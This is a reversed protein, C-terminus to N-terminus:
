MGTNANRVELLHQAEEEAQNPTPMVFAAIEDKDLVADKNVDYNKFNEEHALRQEEEIPM